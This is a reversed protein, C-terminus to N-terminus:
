AGQSALAMTVAAWTAEASRGEGTEVAWGVVGRMGEAPAGAQWAVQSALAMTVAAWKAEASRGEGTEVAWGVVM